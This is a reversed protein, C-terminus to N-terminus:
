ELFGNIRLKPKERPVKRGFFQSFSSPISTNTPIDAPTTFTTTELESSVTAGSIVPGFLVIFSIFMFLGAAFTCIGCWKIRFNKRGQFFFGTEYAFPAALIDLGKEYWPWDDWPGLNNSSNM